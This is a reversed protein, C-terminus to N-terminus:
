RLYTFRKTTSSFWSDAGHATQHHRAFSMITDDLQNAACRGQTGERILEIAYCLSLLSQVAQECIDMGMDAMVDRCFSALVIVASLQQSANGSFYGKM